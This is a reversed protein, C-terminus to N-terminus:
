TESRPDALDDNRTKPVISLPLVWTFSHNYDSTFEHNLVCPVVRNYNHSAPPPRRLPPSEFPIGM